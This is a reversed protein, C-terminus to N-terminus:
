ESDLHHGTDYNTLYKKHRKHYDQAVHRDCVKRECRDKHCQYLKCKRSVVCYSCNRHTPRPGNRYTSIRESLRSDDSDQSDSDDYEMTNFEKSKIDSIISDASLINLNDTIDYEKDIYSSDQDEVKANFKFPSDQYEDKHISEPTDIVCTESFDNTSCVNEPSTIVMSSTNRTIRSHKFPKSRNQDRRVQSPTKKTYKVAHQETHGSMGSESMGAQDVHSANGFRIRVSTGYKESYVQWSTVSNAGLLLGLIDCLQKPLDMDPTYGCKAAM